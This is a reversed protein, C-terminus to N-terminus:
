EFDDGFVHMQTDADVRALLLDVNIPADAVRVLGACTVHEVEVLAANCEISSAALGGPLQPRLLSVGPLATLGAPAYSFDPDFLGDLAPDAPVRMLAGLQTGDGPRISLPIVLKNDVQVGLQAGARTWAGLDIVSNYTRAGDAQFLSLASASRANDIIEVDIVHAIQGDPREILAGEQIAAVDAVLDARWGPATRDADACTTDSCYNSDLTGDALLRASFLLPPAIGAFNMRGGLLLRGERDEGVALIEGSLLDNVANNDLYFAGSMVFPSANGFPPTLLGGNSDFARCVPMITLNMGLPAFHGGCSVWNGDRTTVSARAFDGLGSSVVSAALQSVYQVGPGVFPEIRQLPWVQMPLAAANVLVRGSADLQSMVLAPENYIDQAFLTQGQFQGQDDFVVLLPHNDSSIDEFRHQSLVAIHGDARRRIGLGREINPEEVVPSSDHLVFGFAGFGAVPQGDGAVPAAALTTMTAMAIAGVLSRASEICRTRNSTPM